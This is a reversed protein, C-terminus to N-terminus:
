YWFWSKGKSGQGGKSSAAPENFSTQTSEQTEEVGDVFRRKLVVTTKASGDPLRTTQTTTLTSLVQPRSDDSQSSVLTDVVQPTDQKSTQSKSKEDSRTQVESRVQMADQRDRLERLQDNLEAILVMLNNGHTKAERMEEQLEVIVRADPESDVLREETQQVLATLREYLEYNLGNEEDAFARAAEQRAFDSVARGLDDPCRGVSDQSRQGKVQSNREPREDSTEQRPSAASAESWQNLLQEYVDLESDPEHPQQAIKSSLSMDPQSSMSEPEQRAMRLRKENQQELQMSQMEYDRLAHNGSNGHSAQAAESVPPVDPRSSWNAQEQQAMLLRKKNQQELLMVQKEYDRLANSGSGPGSEDPGGANDEPHEEDKIGYRRKYRQERKKDLREHITSLAEQEEATLEGNVDTGDQPAPRQIEDRLQNTEDTLMNWLEFDPAMASRPMDRGCSGWRGEAIAHFQTHDFFLFTTWDDKYMSPLQPPLIGRCQLSLMWDLGPGRWTSVVGSLTARSGFKERSTMPKDLAAELLDEFAHRWKTDYKSLMSDAELNVPSYPSHKFWDISLWRTSSPVHYDHESGYPPRIAGHTTWQSSFPWPSDREMVRYPNFEADEFLAKIKYPDVYRNEWESREILFRMTADADEWHLKADNFIKGGHEGIAHARSGPPGVWRKYAADCQRQHAAQREEAVQRLEAMNASFETIAAFGDDVFHKFAVFPNFTTKPENQTQDQLTNRQQKIGSAQEASNQKPTNPEQSCRSDGPAFWSSWSQKRDDKDNAM